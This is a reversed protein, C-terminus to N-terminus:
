PQDETPEPDLLRLHREIALAVRRQSARDGATATAPVFQRGNELPLRLEFRGDRGVRVSAEELEILTEPAARGYIVLDTHIELPLGDAEQETSSASRRSNGAPVTSTNPRRIEEPQPSRTTSVPDSHSLAFFEGGLISFGLQLRHPLGPQDIEVCCEGMELKVVIDRVRSESTPGETDDTIRSLRLVMRARHWDSGLSSKARTLMEPSVNWRASLWRSSVPEAILVDDREDAVGSVGAQTPVTPKKRRIGNTRRAADALADILEAKRMPHWGPIQQRRALQALQKRTKNQLSQRYTGNRPRTLRGNGNDVM